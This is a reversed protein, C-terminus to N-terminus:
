EYSLVITIQNNRLELTYCRTDYTPSFLLLSSLPLLLLTAIGIVVLRLVLCLIHRISSVVLLLAEEEEEADATAATAAEAATLEVPLPLLPLVVVAVVVVDVVVLSVCWVM